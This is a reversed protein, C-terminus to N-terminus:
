ENEKRREIDIREYLSDIRKQKKDLRDSEAIWELIQKEYPAMQQALRRKEDIDTSANFQRALRDRAKADIKGFRAHLAEREQLVVDSERLWRHFLLWSMKPPSCFTETKIFHILEAKTMKSYIDPM